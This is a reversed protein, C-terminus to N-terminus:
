YTHEPAPFRRQKVAEVYAALAAAISPQGQMFNRVFRPKRGPYIDLMDHLVLVQGSVEGGAGIGITSASIAATVRAALAAVQAVTGAIDATDTNTMSQVVIPAGGGVRVTGVQVGVTRHRPAPGAPTRATPDGSVDAALMRYRKSM